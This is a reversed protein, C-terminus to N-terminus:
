RRRRPRTCLLPRDSAFHRQARNSTEIGSGLLVFLGRLMVCAWSRYHAWQSVRGLHLISGRRAAVFKISVSASPQFNPIGFDAAAVTLAMEPEGPGNAGGDSVKM